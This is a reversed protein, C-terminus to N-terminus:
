EDDLEALLDAFVPEATCRCNIPEGPLEGYPPDDYSYTKGNRAYHDDEEDVDPYKGDPDGRVREDNVTRWVFRRVGLERSRAAAIQGYAKGVQDRAILRARDEGFAFRQDLEKALDEHLTGNQIARMVAGEVGRAVTEPIAKIYGVNADVFAAVLPQLRRDALFVDSGLAAQVQRGLQIRQFTATRRAFLEALAEVESTAITQGLRQRALEILARARKSEDADLRDGHAAARERAASELLAPLAAELEAFAPRIRAVLALLARAYDREISTPPQARPVHGRPKGTPNGSHGPHFRGVLGRRPKHMGLARM